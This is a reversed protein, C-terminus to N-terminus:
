WWIRFWTGSGGKPGNVVSAEVTIEVVQNPEFQGVEFTAQIFGDSNTTEPRINDVSGDPKRVSVIATAGVVPNLSQDQVIIFLTQTAGAPLLPAAVFAHVRLQTPRVVPSFLAANPLTRTEDGEVIDFYWRGLDTLVVKSGVPQDPQWEMRAREFYQVLRGDINETDSIPEGFYLAGQHADYFQLFAYCVYHNNTAFLRCAGSSVSFGAPDGRQQSDYLWEGLPSMRVQQGPAAQRDYELRARQFYQIQLDGLIKHPFSDTIPYGLVLLPDPLDQYFTLFEGKVAHGTEEFFLGDQLIQQRPTASLSTLLVFVSLLILVSKRPLM